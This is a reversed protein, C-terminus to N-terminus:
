QCQGIGSQVTVTGTGNATAGLADQVVYSFSQTGSAGLSEIGLTTTSSVTVVIAAGGSASVVSLPYNGDPDTDNAVVNVTTSGCNPIAGANDSNAVPPQNGGSDNDNITGSGQSDSITAGGSPATLNVLVTEASEVASDDTTPVTITQTTAAAAFTLTGTAATFDTGSTATGSATAYAVTYSSSTSGTKTVTFTLSQGETAAAANAIAFSPPPPSDNDNITGSGQSDTITAGGSPSSLNVLVTEASEVSGDNTTPVSVTQTAVSSGFSLTGTAATFDSGSTATGSATAYAVTFTSSTSGTKTVTFLLPQGETVAAANGIAFSPPPPAAGEVITGVGTGGGTAIVTGASNNSLTVNFSQNTESLGDAVTAVTFTKSSTGVPFSLLVNSAATYDGPATATGNSTSYNVTVSTAPAGLLFVTFTLASGEPASSSNLVFAPNGATPGTVSQNLRNDAADFVSSIQSSGAPGGAVATKTLRGLEDYTYSTTETAQVAISAAFAAGVLLLRTGGKGM